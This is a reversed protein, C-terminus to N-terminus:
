PLPQHPRGRPPGRRQDPLGLFPLRSTASSTRACGARQAWFRPRLQFYEGRHQPRLACVSTPTGVAPIVTKQAPTGCRALGKAVILSASGIVIVSSTPRKEVRRRRDQDLTRHRNVDGRALAAVILQQDTPNPQGRVISWTIRAAVFACSMGRDLVCYWSRWSRPNHCLSM